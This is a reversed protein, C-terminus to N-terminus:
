PIRWYHRSPDLRPCSASCFQRAIHRQHSSVRNALFDKHKPKPVTWKTYKLTELLPTLVGAARASTEWYKGREKRVIVATSNRYHWSAWKGSLEANTGDSSLRITSGPLEFHGM